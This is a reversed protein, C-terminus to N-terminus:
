FNERWGRIPVGCMDTVFLVTVGDTAMMEALFDWAEDLNPISVLDYLGNKNMGIRM